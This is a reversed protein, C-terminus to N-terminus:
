GHARGASSGRRPLATYGREVNANASHIAVRLSGDRDDARREVEALTAASDVHPGRRHPGRTELLSQAAEPVLHPIEAVDLAGLRLGSGELILPRAEQRLDLLRARPDRREHRVGRGGTLYREDESSVVRHRESGEAPESRRVSRASHEPDIRM